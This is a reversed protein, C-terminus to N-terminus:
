YMEYSWEISGDNAIAGDLTIMSQEGAPLSNNDRFIGGVAGGMLTMTLHDRSDVVCRYTAGSAMGNTAGFIVVPTTLSALMRVNNIFNGFAANAGNLGSIICGGTVFVPGMLIHDIKKKDERPLLGSRDPTAHTILDNDTEAFTDYMWIDSSTNYFIRAIVDGIDKVDGDTTFVYNADNEFHRMGSPSIRMRRSNDLNDTLEISGGCIETTTNEADEYDESQTTVMLRHKSIIVDGNVIGGRLSLFGAKIRQWLTKLGDKGLLSIKLVAVSEEFENKVKEEM